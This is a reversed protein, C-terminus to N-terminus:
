LQDGNFKRGLLEVAHARVAEDVRPRTDILNRLALRILDADAKSLVVPSREALDLKAAVTSRTTACAGEGSRAILKADRRDSM